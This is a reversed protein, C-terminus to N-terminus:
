HQNFGPAGRGEAKEEGDDVREVGDVRGRRRVTEIVQRVPDSFEFGLADLYLCLWAAAVLSLLSAVQLWRPVALPNPARQKIPSPRAM